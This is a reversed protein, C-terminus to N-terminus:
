KIKLEIFSQVKKMIRILKEFTYLINRKINLQNTKVKQNCQPKM